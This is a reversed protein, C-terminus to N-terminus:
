NTPNCCWQTKGEQSVHQRARAFDCDPDPTAIDGFFIFSKARCESRCVTGYHGCRSCLPVDHLRMGRIRNFYVSKRWLQKFRAPDQMPEAYRTGSFLICPTLTRDALVAAMVTAAACAILPNALRAEEFDEQRSWPVPIGAFVEMSYGEARLSAISEERDRVEDASLFVERNELFRGSALPLRVSWVKAGIEEVLHGLEKLSDCNGRHITTQVVVDTNRAALTEIASVAKRHSDRAGRFHDHVEPLHSDLSINVTDALEAVLGLTQPKFLTGNTAFTLNETIERVSSLIDSLQPHLLPEGGTVTVLRLRQEAIQDLITRVYDLPLLEADRKSSQNYCHSCSLNCQRTIELKLDLPVNLTPVAEIDDEVLVEADQTKRFDQIIERCSCIDKRIDKGETGSFEAHVAQIIEDDSRGDSIQEVIFYAAPGLFRVKSSFRDAIVGGFSERRIFLATKEKDSDM